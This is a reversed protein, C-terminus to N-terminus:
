MGTGCCQGVGARLEFLPEDLDGQGTAGALPRLGRALQPQRPLPEELHHRSESKGISGVFFGTSGSNDEMPRDPNGCRSQRVGTSRGASSVSDGSDAPVAAYARTDTVRPFQPLQAPLVSPDDLQEASLQERLQMRLRAWAM